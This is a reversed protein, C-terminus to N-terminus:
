LAPVGLPDSTFFSGAEPLDISFCLLLPNGGFIMTRELEFLSTDKYTWTPHHYVDAALDATRDDQLQLMRKAINALISHGNTM